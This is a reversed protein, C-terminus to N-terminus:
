FTTKGKVWRKLYIKYVLTAFLAGIFPGIIYVILFGFYEIPFAASNWGAFFAVLRPGFDRAPNLGAQTYPAVVCIILSVTLGILVPHFSSNLKKLHSLSFIVLVLFFTGIGEWVSAEFQTLSFSDIELPNQYFEGFMKATLFSEPNGRVINNVSEFHVISPEFLVFVLMGALVAGSLQASIYIPLKKISLKGFITMALSVAPNLHAPCIKRVSYIALAVGFGWTLAIELLNLSDFLVAIAVSSCGIFVLIFTGILEGIIEKIM